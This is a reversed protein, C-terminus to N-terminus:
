IVERPMKVLPTVLLKEAHKHFYNEIFPTIHEGHTLYHTVANYIEWRSFKAKKIEVDKQIYSVIKKKTKKDKVVIIDIDLRKLIEERHKLQKFLKEIIKCAVLWEVSDKMSVSVWHQLEESQTIIINIHKEIFSQLEHVLKSHHKISVTKESRTLLMGNTCALRTYRPGIQIGLTKNYSNRLRLGTIFEENLDEFKINRDKFEIDAFACNGSEKITMKFKIGLNNLVLSVGDFYEKHQILNYHPVVAACLKGDSINYVGKLNDVSKIIGNDDIKLPCIKAKVLNDTANKVEELTECEYILQNM